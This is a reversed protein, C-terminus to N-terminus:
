AHRGTWLPETFLIQPGQSGAELKVGERSAIYIKENMIKGTGSQMYGGSLAMKNLVFRRLVHVCAFNNNSFTSEGEFKHCWMNTFLMRVLNTHCVNNSM